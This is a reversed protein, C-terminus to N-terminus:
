ILKLAELIASNLCQEYIEYYEKSKRWKFPKELFDFYTAIRYEYEIIEYKRSYHPSVVIHIDHTGRLWKAAEYLTPRSLAWSYEKNWNLPTIYNGIRGQKDYASYCEEDYGKEKLLKAVEFSVYDEKNM